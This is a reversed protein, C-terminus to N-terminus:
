SESQQQRTTGPKLKGFVLLYHEDYNTRQEATFALPVWLLEDRASLTYAPPTVGIVTHREGNLHIEKGLVKPDAGFQGRWFPYSLVVVRNSGPQDEGELFYRGLEPALALAGFYNPTVQAGYIREPTGLGSLNFSVGNFAALHEFSRNREIWDVYHGAAVNGDGGKWREYALVLREPDAYPLSRLLVANVASFIATTAGIGLALSVIAAATFGPTRRMTRAAYRLDAALDDVLRLGRADRGAEKWRVVDGFERRARREADTRPIGEAELDATRADVHFRMERDMDREMRSRLLWARGFSKLVALPRWSM